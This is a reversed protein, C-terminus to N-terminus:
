GGGVNIRTAVRDGARFPYMPRRVPRGVAEHPKVSLIEITGLYKSNEPIADLRFAKLTHGPQLGADSGVSLKVLEGARDTSVIKGQVNEAPPNDEGRKRAVTTAGGRGLQKISLEKALDRVEQELKAAQAQFTKAQIEALLRLNREANRAAIVKQKDDLERDLAAQLEKVQTSRISTATQIATNTAGSARDAAKVKELEALATRTEKQATDRVALADDRQKKLDAVATDYNKKASALDDLTQRRDADAASYRAAEKKYADQWNARTAYVVLVLGGVVLSFVLNVFVLIKGVITM